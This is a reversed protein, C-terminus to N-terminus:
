FDLSYYWNDGSEFLHSPLNDLDNNDKYFIYEEYDGSIFQLFLGNLENIPWTEFDEWASFMDFYKIFSDKNVETVYNYKTENKANDWTIAGINDLGSNAISNSYSKKDSNLIFDTINIEM